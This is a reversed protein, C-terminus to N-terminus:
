PSELRYTDVLGQLRDAHRAISQSSERLQAIGSAVEHTARLVNQMEGWIQDVQRGQSGTNGAIETATSSSDALTASLREIAQGSKAALGSAVQSRRRSEEVGAISDRAATQIEGIMRQVQATADRSREALIRVEKAVVGFGKGAEGARVAEISANLALVHSEDAFDRLHEMMTAIQSARDVLTVVTRAMGEAQESMAHIAQVADQVASTGARSSEDSARALRVVGEAQAAADRFSERLLEVVAGTEEASAEERQALTLQQEASRLVELSSVRLSGSAERLQRVMDVTNSRLTLLAEALRGLEDEASVELQPQLDGHALAEAFAVMRGTRRAIMWFFGLFALALLLGNTAVAGVTQLALDGVVRDGDLALVLAGARVPGQSAQGPLELGSNGSAEEIVRETFRRLREDSHATGGELAHHALEQRVRATADASGRAVAALVEGRGDLAALYVVDEDARLVEGLVRAAAERDRLVVSLHLDQHRELTSLLSRGRRDLEGRFQASVRESLLTVTGLAVASTVLVLVLAAKAFLTKTWRTVDM